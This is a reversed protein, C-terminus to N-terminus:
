PTKKAPSPRRDAEVDEQVRQVSSKSSTTYFILLLLLLFSFRVCGARGKKPSAKRGQKGGTRGRTPVDKDENDNNQGETDTSSHAVM